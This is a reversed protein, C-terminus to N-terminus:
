HNQAPQVIRHAHRNSSDLHFPADLSDFDEVSLTRTPRRSYERGVQHWV